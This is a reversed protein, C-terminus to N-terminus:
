IFSVVFNSKNQCFTVVALFNVALRSNRRITKITRTAIKPEIKLPLSSGSRSPFAKTTSGCPGITSCTEPDSSGNLTTSLPEEVEPTLALFTNNAKFVAFSSSLISCM